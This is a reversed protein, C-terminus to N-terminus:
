IEFAEIKIVTMILRLNSNLNTNATKLLLASEQEPVPLQTDCQKTMLNANIWSPFKM